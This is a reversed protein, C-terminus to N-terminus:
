TRMGRPVLPAEHVPMPPPQPNCGPVHVSPRFVVLNRHAPRAAAAFLIAEFGEGHLAEGVAQCAAWQSQTPLPPPLGVRALRQDSDLLAVRDLDIRWHWLDRPLAHSPPLGTAAVARYWEAWATDPEDAFYWAEIARGRQWRGDAPDLPQYFPTAGHPAHRVYVDHVAGVDVDLRPM